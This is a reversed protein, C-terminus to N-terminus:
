LLHIEYRGSTPATGLEIVIMHTAEECGFDPWWVSPEVALPLDQTILELCQRDRELRLRYPSLQRVQVAPHLLLRSRARQGRGGIIQDFVYLPGDVGCEIRRRHRPSGTLHSYGDHEGDVVLGESSIRIEHVRVRARRGMRFSGWFECQDHEDLTVTNHMLTSRSRARLPGPDYEYVGADVIFRAGEVSLEFSFIDGHAHAPLNDPGVQGADYMLVLRPGRLVHYGAALFSAFARQRPKPNGSVTSYIDLLADPKHTMNLGGDNFLALLGDPCTMDAVVQAMAALARALRERLEGPRMLRWVDLLDAFVQVHYSPSREFHFGDSLLQCDLQKALLRSARLAMSSAFPGAFYRSGWYLAKINKILHNGGIDLELNALLFRLQEYISREARATFEPPLRQRRRALEGMWAVTRISIAYSNWSDLWYGSHYPRNHHIWDDVLEVFAEDPLADVWDFYHLHLKWLRTGVNLLPHHWRVPRSLEITKNLFTFCWGSPSRTAAPPYAPEWLPLPPDSAVPPPRHTPPAALGPVVRALAVLTHRKVLLALRYLLQSPRVHAVTRAFRLLM